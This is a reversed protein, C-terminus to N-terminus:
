RNVRVQVTAITGRYDFTLEAVGPGMGRMAYWHESRSVLVVGWANSTPLVFVNRTTGDDFQIVSAPMEVSEGVRLTTPATPTVSVIRVLRMDFTTEGDTDCCSVRQEWMPWEYGAKLPVVYFYDFHPRSSTFRYRGTEDTTVVGYSAGFSANPYITIEVGPVPNGLSDTVRGEVTWPATRMAVNPMAITADSAMVMESSEATDYLPHAFRLKFAGPPLSMAFTGDDQTRATTGAGAGSIATVVADRLPPPPLPIRSGPPAEGQVLGTVTGPPRPPTGSPGSPTRPDDSCAIAAALAFAISALRRSIGVTRRRLVM